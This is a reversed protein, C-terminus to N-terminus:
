QAATTATQNNAQVIPRAETIPQVAVAVNSLRALWPYEERARPSNAFARNKTVELYEEREKSTVTEADTSDGTRELQPYKELTRPGSAITITEATAAESTAPASCTSSAFRLGPYAERTRPSNIVAQNNRISSPVCDTGQGVAKPDSGQASQGVTFAAALAAGFLSIKMNM